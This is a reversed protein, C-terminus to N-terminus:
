MPTTKKELLGKEVFKISDILRSHNTELHDILQKLNM